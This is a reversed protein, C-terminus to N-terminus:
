QVGLLFDMRKELVENSGPGIYIFHTYTPAAFLQSDKIMKHAHEAHSFALCGDNPSHIILTPCSIDEIKKARHEVDFVFGEGSDNGTVMSQKLDRIDQDSFKQLATKPKLKTFRKLNDILTKEENRELKRRLGDWFKRQRKPSFIIKSAYYEVRLRHFWPKVVAAELVLKEMMEPYRSAFALAAPGGASNGIVSVKKISLKKMLAAFLDATDEATKGSEIPTRGYGPRSPILISFGNKVLAKQGFDSRCSGHGGHLILVTPGNGEIKYEVRGKETECIRIEDM